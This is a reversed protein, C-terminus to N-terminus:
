LAPVQNRLAPLGQVHGEHAGLLPTVQEGICSDYLLQQPLLVAEAHQYSAWHNYGERVENDEAVIAQM